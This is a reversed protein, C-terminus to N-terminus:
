DDFNGSFEESDLDKLQKAKAILSILERVSGDGTQNFVDNALNLVEGLDSNKAWYSERMIEAFEAACAALKFEPTCQALRDKFTNTPISRYIEETHGTQPNKYRIFIKGIDAKQLVNEFWNYNDTENRLKIEYLATVSHGSGIEGGDVTDDRFKDDAVDRNEYGLLRYSRVVKPDFDVQIKVDRAIVELAGTLNDVFVRRSEELNDVYAYYGNGKNGLKEMLVDNFNGMGFGITSLTIGMDAYRKIEKLLDDANTVGVNAVGDSCLIIRNTKRADFNNSAMQFGLRLGAQCNTSGEPRLSNIANVIRNRYKLSTPELIVSGTTGYVVIGIQDDKDLHNVLTNLSKKVLELRDERSMSGSVDIVFVLNAAKRNSDSIKRGKIGIKLLKSNQGFHSPSGELFVEFTEKQPASYRYDFRNVFEEVRIADKPPLASSELYSRCLTYSADDVDVAFTSLHDDETDVFPNVGYNEFFMADFPEGNVIASGGHAPPICSSPPGPLRCGGINAAGGLGAIPDDIPVGDVKYSVEFPRGGRIYVEGTSTTVTGAAKEILEDVTQVPRRQITEKTIVMQNSTQFKDIVDNKAEVTIKEKLSEVRQTLANNISFTVDSNIQVDKLELEQYGVATIKVAYSGPPVRKITFKGDADTQAGRNTGVLLVTAGIIPQGTQSDTIQGTITGYEDAMIIAAAFFLILTPILLIILTYRKM